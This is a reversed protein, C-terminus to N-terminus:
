QMPFAMLVSDQWTLAYVDGEETMVYTLDDASFVLCSSNGAYYDASDVEFTGIQTCNERLPVRLRLVFSGSGDSLFGYESLDDQLGDKGGTRLGNVPM